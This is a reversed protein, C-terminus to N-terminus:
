MLPTRTSSPISVMKKLGAMLGVDIINDRLVGLINDVEYHGFVPFNSLFNPEIPSFISRGIGNKTKFESFVHETMFGIKIDSISTNQSNKCAVFKNYHLIIFKEGEGDEIKQSQLALVRMRFNRHAGIFYINYLSQCMRLVKNSRAM